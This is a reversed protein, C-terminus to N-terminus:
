LTDWGLNAIMETVSSTQGYDNTVFRAARRQVMEIKDNATDTFPAWAAAAYEVIPCVFTKYATDKAAQLASKM